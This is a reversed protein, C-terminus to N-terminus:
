RKEFEVMVPGVQGACQVPALHGCGPIVVLQSQPVLSHMTEGQSLPIVRDEAGWVILVPMKLQPLLGDTADRGTLMTALARHVIWARQNSVRLIDRAVFAPVQPPHPMLLADLQDLEAPTTPTFLRTDWAPKENIGVADMLILRRVREPHKFALHQVIGGGMSWGELDVQKLGLADLFGLVVDAEDPVSYSFDAPKESRGFGLLDPMYVRFGAQALLPALNRWDEARGGLGHVLVVAPGDVPGEVVYHVRHGAVEVSHNEAGSLCMRLENAANFYGVPRLWFGVGAAVALAGAAVAAGLVRKKWSM